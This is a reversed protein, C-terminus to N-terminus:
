RALRLLRSVSYRLHNRLHRCTAQSWNIAEDRAALGTAESSPLGVRGRGCEASTLGTDQGVLSSM